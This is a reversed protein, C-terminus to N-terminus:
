EKFPDNNASSTRLLLEFLSQIKHESFQRGNEIRKRPISLDTQGAEMFHVFLDGFELFFYGKATKLVDNLKCHQFVLKLMEQNAWEYAKRIMESFDVIENSSEFSNILENKLPHETLRNCHRLINLYKGTVLM